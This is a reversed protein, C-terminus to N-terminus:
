YRKGGIKEIKETTKQKKKDLVLVRLLCLRVIQYSKGGWRGGGGRVCLVWREKQPLDATVEESADMQIWKFGNSDM